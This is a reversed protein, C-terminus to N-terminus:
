VPNDNKHDVIFKISEYKDVYLPQDTKYYILCSAPSLAVLFWKRNNISEKNRSYQTKKQRPKCQACHLQPENHYIPKIMMPKM